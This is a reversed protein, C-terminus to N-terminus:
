YEKVIKKEYQQKEKDKRLMRKIRITIELFFQLVVINSMFCISFINVGPLALVVPLFSYVTSRIIRWKKMKKVSLLLNVLALVISIIWLIYITVPTFELFNFIMPFRCVIAGERGVVDLDAPDIKYGPKEGRITVKGPEDFVYKFYGNEDTYVIDGNIYVKANPVPLGRTDVLRITTEEGAIILDSVIFAGLKTVDLLIGAQPYGDEYGYVLGDYPVTISAYANGDAVTSMDDTFVDAFPIKEGKNNLIEVMIDEGEIAEGEVVIIDLEKPICEHDVCFENECDPDSCCEYPYCEHDSVYGCPCIVPICFGSSCEQSGACDSNDECYICVDECLASLCQNDGECTENLEKKPRCTGSDCYEDEDCDEDSACEGEVIIIFDRCYITEDSRACVTLVYEGPGNVTVPFPVDEREDTDLSDLFGSGCSFGSPCGDIYVDIDMEKYDGRNEIDATVDITEGVVAEITDIYYVFLEHDDDDGDDPPTVSACTYNIDIWLTYNVPAGNNPLIMQYDSTSGNWNPENDVVETVFVLNGAADNLYGERFDLSSANNAFTYATPVNNYTGYTLVFTSTSSFTNTGDEAGAGIFADLVGLNGISLPATISTDNVAIVHMSLFSTTCNPDGVLMNLETILNGNVVYTYNAGAGLVVEGYIGDWYTANLSGYFDVPTVNGGETEVQCFVATSFLLLFLAIYSYKMLLYSAM